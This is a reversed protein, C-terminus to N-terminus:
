RWGSHACGASPCGRWRRFTPRATGTSPSFGMLAEAAPATGIVLGSAAGAVAQQAVMRISAKVNGRVSDEAAGDGLEVGAVHLAAQMADVRRAFTCRIYWTPRSSSSAASPRPRTARRGQARLRALAGAALSDVGGSVGPVYTLRDNRALYRALLEIRRETESDFAQQGQLAHLIEQQAPQETATANM